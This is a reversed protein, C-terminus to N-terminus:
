SNTAPTFYYALIRSEWPGLPMPGRSKESQPGLIIYILICIDQKQGSFRDFYRKSGRAQFKLTLGQIGYWRIGAQRNHCIGKNQSNNEHSVGLLTKGTVAFEKNHSNNKHSVGLSTKGTVAYEKTIAITRM